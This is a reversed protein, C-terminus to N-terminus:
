PPAPFLVQLFADAIAALEAAGAGARARVRLSHTVSHVMRALAEPDRDPALDGRQQDRRFREAIAADTRAFMTALKDRLAEDTEAADTAVTAILCGRPLGPETACRINADFFAEVARRSDSDTLLARFARRGHTAAYRDIVALFLGRKDGFAAYLSPRGIGMAETLDRISAGEYGKSWFVRVAADLARDLDFERPRGRPRTRTQPEEM